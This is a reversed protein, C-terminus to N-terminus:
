ISRLNQKLRNNEEAGVDKGMPNEPTGIAFSLIRDDAGFLASKLRTNQKENIVM